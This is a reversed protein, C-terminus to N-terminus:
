NEDVKANTWRSWNLVVYRAGPGARRAQSPVGPLALYEPSPWTNGHLETGVARPVSVAVQHFTTRAPFRGVHIHSGRHICPPIFSYTALKHAGPQVLLLAQYTPGQHTRLM